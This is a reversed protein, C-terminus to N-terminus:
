VVLPEHFTEFRERFTFALHEHQSVAKAVLFRPTQHFDSNSESNALLSDTLDLIRGVMFDDPKDTGLIAVSEQFRHLLCRSESILRLFLIVAGGLLHLEFWLTTDDGALVTLIVIRIVVDPEVVPCPKAFELNAGGITVDLVDVFGEFGMGLLFGSDAPILHHGGVVAGTM